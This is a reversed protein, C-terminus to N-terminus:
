FLSVQDFQLAHIDDKEQFFLRRLLLSSWFVSDSKCDISQSPSSYVLVANEVATKEHQQSRRQKVTSYDFQFQLLTNSNSNSPDNELLVRDKWQQFDQLSHLSTSLQLLASYSQLTLLSKWSIHVDTHIQNVTPTLPAPAATTTSTVFIQKQKTIIFQQSYFKMLDVLLALFVLIILLFM